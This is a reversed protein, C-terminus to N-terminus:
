DTFLLDLDVDTSIGDVTGTGTYQWFEVDYFFTPASRYEALWFTYDRLSELHMISYGYRQNFYVGADYGAETIRRCFTSAYDSVADTGMGASRSGEDSIEEWDFFVPYSLEAGDLVSLVFDAEEEAEAESIAQSFFYVGLKIGAAQAAAFNERYCDDVNLSGSGFGRFGLRLIAFDIGDAKVRQWDIQGQHSSVDIGAIANSYHVRGSAEQTFDAANRVNIPLASAAGSGQQPITVGDSLAAVWVILLVAAIIALVGFTILLSQKPQQKHKRQAAM